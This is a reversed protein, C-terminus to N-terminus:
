RSRDEVLLTYLSSGFAFGGIGFLAGGGAGPTFAGAICLAVGVGFIIWARTDKM